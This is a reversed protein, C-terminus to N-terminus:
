FDDEAWGTRATGKIEYITGPDDSFEVKFYISDTVVGTASKAAKLMVKGDTITVTAPAATPHISDYYADTSNTAQFTLAKADFKAKVKFNWLNGLDDVWISDNDAATNYTMVKSPSGYIAAGNQYLDAWWENSVDKAKTKGPDFAKECSVITFLVIAIFIFKKSM